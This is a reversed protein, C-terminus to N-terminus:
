PLFWLYLLVPLLVWGLLILVWDAARFRGFDDEHHSRLQEIRRHLEDHVLDARPSPPSAGTADQPLAM